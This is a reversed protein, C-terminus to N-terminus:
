ATTRKALEVQLDTVRREIDDLDGALMRRLESSRTANMNAMISDADLQLSRITQGLEINTLHEYM